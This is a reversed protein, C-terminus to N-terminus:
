SRAASHEQNIPLQVLIRTGEGPASHIAFEAGIMEARERMSRLGLGFSKSNPDFGRGNDSVTLTVGQSDLDLSVLVHSAQSHRSVNALAEQYIRYLAQETPLPLRGEGNIRLEIELSTFNQWEYQYERMLQILGHEQLAAPHMEQILIILEQLVEYVLSEAELLHNQAAAPDPELRQRAAGLQALAAFAKQKASDHLDRALRTREQVVALEQGKEYLRANELHLAARQALATFLRVEDRWFAHRETFSVHFIGFIEDNILIPLLMFSMIRESFVMQVAIPNEDPRTFENPTDEVIVAQGSSVLDGVRGQDPRFRLDYLNKGTFGRMVRFRFCERNEDWTLVASQDAGLVDVAVDVLDQLVHDLDIHHHMHEDAKYLAEIEQRNREIEATRRLVEKELSSSRSEINKLRLRYGGVLAGIIIFAALGRFWLTDWFPPIVTIKLVERSENWVGDNNSSKLQLIYNGGSLNTYKGVRQTGIYNWGQDLGELQYAYQNKHSQAYSLAAFVFEFSSQPWKLTIEAPPQALNNLEPNNGSLHLKTLVVPPLYTNNDILDPNLVTLGESSGFFMEGAQNQFYAGPNFENTPLGDSSDFNKFDGKQPDLRSLGNNTSLWLHGSADELIGYVVNNPLGDEVTYRQFTENKPDFSNLGGGWTGLWLNGDRTQHVALVSNHSLSSSNNPDHTFVDFEGSKPDFRNLGGLLTGIWLFGDADPLIALIDNSTLHGPTDPDATYHSFRRTRPDFTNLGGGLTGIWLRGAQDEAIASVSDHSLSSAVGDVHHFQVFRGTKRNLANLGSDTGIWITGQSDEFLSRVTDNTLTTPNNPNHRYHTFKGTSRELRDLGQSYTGIWLIGQSDELLSLIRNESLSDPDDPSASYYTFRRARLDLKNIGEGTGIWIVGSADEFVTWVDLSSLSNKDYPDPLYHTILGNSPDLRNLGEGSTGIWVMGQQDIELATVNPSSLQNSRDTRAPLRKISGSIRDLLHLGGGQTGIWLGGAQDEILSTIPTSALHQSDAPDITHHIFIPRGSVSIRENQDPWQDLGGLTAIWLSGKSDEYISRVEDHVLSKSDQPDHQYLSFQGTSRDLRNLGGSTGVWLAGHHDEFIAWVRNDSLSTLDTQSHEFRTFTGSRSDFRNLGGGYTGVWLNGARDEYVTRIYNNSISSPNDLNNRYVTFTYGDYRNLGDGTCFWMFGQSDQYACLVGSQSLGQEISIREFRVKGAPDSNEQQHSTAQAPKPGPLLLSVVILVPILISIVPVRLSPKHM